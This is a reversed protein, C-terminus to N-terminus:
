SPRDKGLKKARELWMEARAHAKQAHEVKGREVLALGKAAWKRANKMAANRALTVKIQKALEKQVDPKRALICEVPHM